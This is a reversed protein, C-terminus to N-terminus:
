DAFRFAKVFLEAQSNACPTMMLQQYFHEPMVPPARLMNDDTTDRIVAPIATLGAEKSARLRREGMILEFDDGKPRVVIPQLVGFEKISHILEALAEEEFVKRPQQANPIIRSLELYALKAGPVAVMGASDSSFFVDVADRQGGPILSGIGRGLGGRRKDDSM